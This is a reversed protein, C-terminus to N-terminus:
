LVVPHCKPVAGSWKGDALCELTNDASMKYDPTICYFVIKEGVMYVDRAKTTSDSHPTKGPFRCFSECKTTMASWRGNKQCLLFDSGTLMFGQKCAYIVLDGGHLARSANGVIYAHQPIPPNTCSVVKCTPIKDSWEGDSGCHLNESGILTFGDKCTFHAIGSFKHSTVSVLLNPDTMGLPKCHVAQCRPLPHSWRRGDLCTLARSGFVEYGQPCSFQAVTGEFLYGQSLHVQVNSVNYLHRCQEDKVVLRISQRRQNPLVCHFFGNDEPQAVTITLRYAEFVDDKTKVKTWTQPYNRYISSVEWIPKGKSKPQLCYLYVTSSRNVVLEGLSNVTHPGREVEFYIPPPGNGSKGDLKACKPPKSSWEGSRCEIENVGRLQDQFNNACKFHLRAGELFNQNFLIAANQQVHFVNIGADTDMSFECVDRSKYCFLKNKKHWRGRRCRVEMKREGVNYTKCSFILVTGHPYRVPSKAPWNEFNAPKYIKEIEPLTNCVSPDIRAPARTPLFTSRVTNLVISWKTRWRGQQCVRALIKPSREECQEQAVTGEPYTLQFMDFYVVESTQNSYVLFDHTKHFISPPLIPQHCESPPSTPCLPQPTLQGFHCRIPISGASCRFTVMSGHPAFRATSEFAGGAPPKLDCSKPNCYGLPLTLRGRVCRVVGPGELQYGKICIMHIDLGHEFTSGSQLVQSSQSKLFFSHLRSSIRCSKPICRPIAPRWLWNAPRVGVRPWALYRRRLHWFRGKVRNGTPDSLVARSSDDRLQICNHSPLSRKMRGWIIQGEILPHTQSVCKPKMKPMWVGNVCTAKPTGILKNGKKCNFVIARGEDVHSIYAAFDYAGMQGELMIDGGELQGFTKSPHSCTMAICAFAQGERTWEGYLCKITNYQTSPRYGQRCEYKAIAGHSSKTFFVRANTVRPPWARCRIPKCQPIHSWTGNHCIIEPDLDLEHKPDCTVTLKTSHVVSTSDAVGSITGSEILPVTCGQLCKPMVHSWQGNDECKAYPAGFHSMKELCRFVVVSAFKTDAGEIYGNDLHGLAPCRIEECHPEQGAWVGEALCIRQVQGVLRYGQKCSYTVTSQYTLSSGVVTGHLPDPPRSCESAKCVPTEGTWEGNQTCKRAKEGIMQHGPLCSFEIAHPYQFLEGHRFGNIPIGPDPCSRAQCTMKPGFWQAVNRQNLLCKALSMSSEGSKYYGRVCGYKVETNLEYQGNFSTGNHSAYAREPPPGCKLQLRCVPTTGSWERNGQCRRQSPGILVFGDNCSYEANAGFVPDGSARIIGNTLDPLPNCSSSPNVCSLGCEADCLCKKNSKKCQADKTCAKRCYKPRPHLTSVPCTIQSAHLIGALLAFVALAALPRLRM